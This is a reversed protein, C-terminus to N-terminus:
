LCARDVLKVLDMDGFSLSLGQRSIQSPGTASGTTPLNSPTTQAGVSIVGATGSGSGRGSIWVGYSQYNWGAYNEDAALAASAGNGTIAGTYKSYTQSTPFYIYQSALSSGNAANFAINTGRASQITIASAQNSANTTIFYKAGLENPSIGSVSTVSDSSPNATYSLEQSSGSVVTTTNPKVASWSSFAVTPVSPNSAGGGGGGGCGSLILALVSITKIKMM